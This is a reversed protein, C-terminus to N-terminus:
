FIYPTNYLDYTINLRSFRKNGEEHRQTRRDAYTCALGTGVPCIKTSNSMPFKQSFNASCSWLQNFNTLLIPYKVHPRLYTQITSLLVFYKTAECRQLPFGNNRKCPLVETNNVYVHFDATTYLSHITVNGHCCENRSHEV